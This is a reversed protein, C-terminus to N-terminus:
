RRSYTMRVPVSATMLPLASSSRLRVQGNVTATSRSVPSRCSAHAALPRHPPRRPRGSRARGPACRTCRTCRPLTATSSWPRRTPASSTASSTSRERPAAVRPCPAPRRPPAADTTDRESSVPQRRGGRERRNRETGGEVRRIRCNWSHCSPRSPLAPARTARPARSPRCPQSQGRGRSARVPQRWPQDRALPPTM